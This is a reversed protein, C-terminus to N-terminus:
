NEHNSSEKRRARVIIFSGAIFSIAVWSAVGVILIIWIWPSANHFLLWTVNRLQSVLGSALQEAQSIGLILTVASGSTFIQTVLLVLTAVAALSLGLLWRKALQKQNVSNRIQLYTKWRTTFGAAPSAMPSSIIEKKVSVWAHQVPQCETCTLMHEELQAKQEPNLKVEDLLWSNYPQHVM